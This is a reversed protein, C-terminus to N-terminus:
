DKKLITGQILKLIEEIVLVQLLPFKLQKQIM